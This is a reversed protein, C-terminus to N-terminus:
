AKWIGHLLYLRGDMKNERSLSYAQSISKLWFKAASFYRHRALRVRALLFFAAVYGEAAAPLLYNEAQELDRTAGRAGLYSFGALLHAEISGMAAAQKFLQTSKNTNKEVHRGDFYFRGLGLYGIKDGEEYASRTYWHFALELSSEVPGQGLEYLQAVDASSFHHGRGHLAKMNNLISVVDRQAITAEFETLLHLLEAQDNL